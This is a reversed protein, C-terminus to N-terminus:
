LLRLRGTVSDVVNKSGPGIALVTKSGAAVQTRGADCVAFTPLGAKEAAVELRNMEQLNKCTVVMKPQGCQEWKFLLARQSLMLEGYIGTAAHACQSAIKGGGMKLDQRVVFVMKVDQEGANSPLSRSRRHRGSLRSLNRPVEALLGLVFGIILGPILYEPKFGEPISWQPKRDKRDVSSFDFQPKWM